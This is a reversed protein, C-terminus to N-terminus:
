KNILKLYKDELDTREDDSLRATELKKKAAMVDNLWNENEMERVKRDYFEKKRSLSTLKPNKSKIYSSVTGIGAGGALGLAAATTLYMMLVDKPIVSLPGLIKGAGIKAALKELQMDQETKNQTAM